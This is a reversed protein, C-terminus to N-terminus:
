SHHCSTTTAATTTTTAATPTTGLLPMLSSVARRHQQQGPKPSKRTRTNMSSSSQPKDLHILSSHIAISDTSCSQMRLVCTTQRCVTPKGAFVTMLMRCISCCSIIFYGAYCWVTSICCTRLLHEKM